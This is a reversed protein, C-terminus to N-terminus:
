SQGFDYCRDTAVLADARDAKNLTGLQQVSAYFRPYDGSCLDFLRLFATVQGSYVSIAALRANNIPVDFWVDYGRYGRWRSDRMQRYRKQLKEIAAKERVKGNKDKKARQFLKKDIVVGEVGNPAKEQSRVKGRVALASHERIQRIQEFVQETCESKKAVVQVDSYRDRIMIFQTNGHDRISSVWGM